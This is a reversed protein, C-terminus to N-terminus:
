YHFSGNGSNAYRLGRIEDALRKIVEDEDVGQEILMHQAFSTEKPFQNSGSIRLDKSQKKGRPDTHM